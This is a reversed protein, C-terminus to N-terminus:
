NLAFKPNFKPATESILGNGVSLCESLPSQLLQLLILHFHDLLNLLILASTIIGIIIIIIVLPSAVRRNIQLRDRRTVGRVEAEEATNEQLHHGLERPDLLRTTTTTGSVGLM